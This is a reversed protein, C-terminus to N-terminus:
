TAIAVIIIHCSIVIALIVIHCFVASAIHCSIVIALIVIHCFISYCLLVYM